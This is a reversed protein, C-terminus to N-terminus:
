PVTRATLYSSVISAGTRDIEPSTSLILRFGLELLLQRYNVYSHPTMCQDLIGTFKSTGVINAQIGPHQVNFGLGLQM